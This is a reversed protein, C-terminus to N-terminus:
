KRELVIYTFPLMICVQQMRLSIGFGLMLPCYLDLNIDFRFRKWRRHIDIEIARM